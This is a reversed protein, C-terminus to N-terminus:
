LPSRCRRCTCCHPEPSNSSSRWRSRRDRSYSPTRGASRCIGTLNRADSPWAGEPGSTDRRTQRVSRGDRRRCASNRRHAAIARARFCVQGRAPESLSPAPSMDDESLIQRAQLKKFARELTTNTRMANGGKVHERETLLALIASCLASELRPHGHGKWSVRPPHPISRSVVTLLPAPVFM